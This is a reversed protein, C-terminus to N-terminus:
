GLIQHLNIAYLEKLILVVYRADELLLFMSKDMQIFKARKFILCCQLRTHEWFPEAIIHSWEGKPLIMYNRGKTHRKYITATPEIVKWEEPSLTM